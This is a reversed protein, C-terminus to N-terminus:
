QGPWITPSSTYDGVCPPTNVTFYTNTAQQINGSTLKATQGTAPDIPNRSSPDTYGVMTVIDGAPCALSTPNSVPNRIGTNNQITINVMGSALIGTMENASLGYQSYTDNYQYNAGTGSNGNPFWGRSGVALGVVFHATPGTWIYNYEVASGTFDVMPNGNACVDGSTTGLPDTGIAAEASNGAALITNDYVIVKNVAPCSRGVEIAADSADVVSNAVIQANECSVRMGDAYTTDNPGYNGSPNGLYQHHSAYVGIFNQYITGASCPAQEFSGYFAVAGNGTPNVIYNNAIYANNGGYMSIDLGNQQYGYAGREGDVWVNQLIGGQAGTPCYFNFPAGAPQNFPVGGCIRILSDNWSANRVLRAMQAHHNVNPTNQTEVTVGPWIILPNNIQVLTDQPITVLTSGSGSVYNSYASDIEAQLTDGSMPSQGNISIAGGSGGTGGFGYTGDSCIYPELSAFEGSSFFTAVIQSIPAGGNLDSLYTSFGGADPERNLIARYLILTKEANNYGLNNFETSEFVSLGYSM